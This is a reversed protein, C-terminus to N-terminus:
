VKKPLLRRTKFWQNGAITNQEGNFSSRPYDAFNNTFGFYLTLRVFDDSPIQSRHHLSGDFMIMRNFKNEIHVDNIYFGSDSGNEVYPNMFLLCIVYFINPDPSEKTDAHGFAQDGSTILNVYSRHFHNFGCNSNFNKLYPPVWTDFEFLEMREKFTIPMSMIFPTGVAPTESTALNFSATNEYFKIWKDVVHQPMVDDHIQIKKNGFVHEIM